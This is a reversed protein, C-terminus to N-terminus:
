PHRVFSLNAPCATLCLADRIPKGKHSVDPREPPLETVAVDQSTSVAEAWLVPMEDEFGFGHPLEVRHIAANQGDGRIVVHIDRMDAAAGVPLIFYNTLITRM